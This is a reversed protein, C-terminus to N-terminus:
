EAPTREVHLEYDVEGGDLEMVRVVRWKGPKLTVIEGVEKPPGLLAHREVSGSPFHVEYLKKDDAVM